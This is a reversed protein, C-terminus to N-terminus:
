EEVWEWYTDAGKAHMDDLWFKLKETTKVALQFNLEGQDDYIYIEFM